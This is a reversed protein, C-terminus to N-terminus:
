DLAISGIAAPAVDDTREFDVIMMNRIATPGGSATIPSVEHEMARDDVIITEMPHQLTREMVPQRDGDRYVSSGGGACSKRGILHLLLLDHGDRHRGEPAPASSMGAGAETRILHVTILWRKDGPAIERVTALDRGLVARFYENDYTKQLIPAFVRMQGGYVSNVSTSQHFHCHPLIEARTGGDQGTSVLLRGLRRFRVTGHHPKVYTDPPLDDWFSTFEGWEDAAPLPLYGCSWGRYVVEAPILASDQSTLM